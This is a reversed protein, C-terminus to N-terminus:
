ALAKVMGNTDVTVIGPNSSSWEVPETSRLALLAGDAGINLSLEQPYVVVTQSLAAGKARYFITSYASADHNLTLMGNGAIGQGVLSWQTLNLSWEVSYEVGTDGRVTLQVNRNPGVVPMDLRPAAASTNAIIATAILGAALFRRAFSRTLINMRM